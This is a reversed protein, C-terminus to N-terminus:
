IIGLRKRKQTAIGKFTIQRLESGTNIAVGVKEIFTDGKKYYNGGLNLGKLPKGAQNKIKFSRSATTGTLTKGLKIADKLNLGEGVNRFKGKSKVDVSFM